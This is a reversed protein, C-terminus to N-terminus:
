RRFALTVIRKPGVEVSASGGQLELGRLTEESLRVLAAEGAGAVSVRGAIPEGTPNYVRVIVSQGDEAPKVASLVLGEPEVRVFSGAAALPGGHAGTQAAALPANFAHAEAAVGAAFWGGRYPLIAYRFTHEGECQAGPTDNYDADEAGGEAGVSLRGVCRLLTLAVTREGDPLVEYEPLGQNLIALGREGDEVAVFTQQPAFTSAGPWDAPPQISRTVVEFHGEAHATETDAGSAFLARLRHDRAGNTVRTEIDVRRSGRTLTVWSTIPIATTREARARRDPTGAEPIVLRTDIRLRGLVPGSAEVSVTAAAGANTVLRDLVPPIYRYEDGVDGGNQFLNCPAYEVDNELDIVALAGGPLVVVSLRDNSLSDADATVGEVGGAGGPVLFYTNWGGGPAAADLALRFRRVREGRPLEHPDLRRVFTDRVDLVQSPAEEGEPTLAKVTHPAGPALFEAEVVAVEERPGGLPNFLTLAAGGEPLARTDLRDALYQASREAVLEAVDGAEAFRPLMDEHVRDISCGCISDHPHNELLRKWAFRLFDREDRGGHWWAAASWPEAGRELLAQVRANEQKLYMRASLTGALIQCHRDERLEGEHVDLPAAEARVAEIFAPLTSHLIETGEGLKGQLGALVPGLDPQAELHDVGNMLLLHRTAAVPAQRGIIGQAYQVAADPDAPFRQANNYWFALHHALVESGDPGRWILEMKRGPVALSYGRGFIANDIGFGHLIQPMQGINGFQDPLYGIKMVGGWAEAIAHGYLLNRVHSEASTLFEDNLLYWPGILIRGERVHERLRAENQPRIQLYDELVITQGDLHFVKFGPDRDLIGLLNDILDVLRARFQQFTLYWERDWHTHSIVHLTHGAAPTRM